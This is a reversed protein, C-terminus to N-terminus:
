RATLGAARALLRAAVSRAGGSDLGDSGTRRRREEVAAGIVIDNNFAQFQPPLSVWGYRSALGLIAVTAYLNM